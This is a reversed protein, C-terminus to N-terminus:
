IANLIDNISIDENILYEIIEENTLDEESSSSEFDPYVAEIITEESYYFINDEINATIEYSKLGNMDVKGPQFIFIRVAVLIIVAIVAIAFYPRLAPILRGIFEPSKKEHIRESLRISFNEFYDEPVKFPMKNSTKSLKSPIKNLNDM